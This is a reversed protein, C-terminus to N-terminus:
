NLVSRIWGAPCYCVIADCMKMEDQERNETGGNDTALLLHPRCVVRMIKSKRSLLACTIRPSLDYRIRALTCETCRSRNLKSPGAATTPYMLGNNITANCKKRRSESLVCESVSVMTVKPRTAKATKREPHTPHIATDDGSFPSSQPEPTWHKGQTLVADDSRSVSIGSLSVSTSSLQLM